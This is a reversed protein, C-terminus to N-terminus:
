LEWGRLSAEYLNALDKNSPTRVNNLTFPAAAATEIMDSIEGTPFEEERFKRPFGLEDFLEKLRRLAAEALQRNSRGESNEGIAVAMRAFKDECETMNYEMAYPLLVGNQYGHPVKLRYYSTMGHVIGLGANGCAMNAMSSALHQISKAEPNNTFCAKQLNAMIIRMSEYALADTLPTALKTWIAEVCHALADIGSYVMQRAPCTELFSPDLISVRPQITDGIVGYVREQAHDHVVFASSVDSGSGATTPLCIVPLPPVGYRNRGEFQSVPKGNTAELAIGKGACIASGGGVVVIGNCGTEQCLIAGRHMADESADEGADDFVEYQIGSCDLSEEVRKSLGRARLVRDTVLLARAIGLRSAEQGAQRAGGFGHILKTQALFTSTQEKM